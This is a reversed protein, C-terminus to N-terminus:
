HTVTLKCNRYVTKGDLSRVTGTATFTKGTISGSFSLAWTASNSQQMATGSLILNGVPDITGSMSWLVDPQQFKSVAKNGSVRMAANVTYAPRAAPNMLAPGCALQGNWDGDMSTAAAVSAAARRSRVERESKARLEREKAELQDVRQKLEIARIEPAIMTEYNRSQVRQIAALVKAHHTIPVHARNFIVTADQESDRVTVRDAGGAKVRRLDNGTASLTLSLAV